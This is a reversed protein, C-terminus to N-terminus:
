RTILATAKAGTSRLPSEVAKLKEETAAALQEVYPILTNWSLRIEEVM